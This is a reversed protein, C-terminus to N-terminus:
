AIVHSRSSGGTPVHPVAGKDAQVGPAVDTPAVAVETAMGNAAGADTPTHTPAAPADTLPHTPASSAPPAQFGAKTADTTGMSETVQEAPKSEDSNQLLLLQNALFTRCRIIFM